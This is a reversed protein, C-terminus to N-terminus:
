ADNIPERNQSPTQRKVSDLGTAATVQDLYSDMAAGPGGNNAVGAVVLLLALLLAIAVLVKKLPFM